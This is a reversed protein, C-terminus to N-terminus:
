ESMYVRALTRGGRICGKYIGRGEMEGRGGRERYPSPPPSSMSTTINSRNAAWYHRPPPNAESSCNLTVSSGERVGVLERELWLVPADKFMPSSTFFHLLLVITLFFNYNIIYFFKRTAHINEPVM